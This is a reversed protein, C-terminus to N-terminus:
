FVIPGMSVGRRGRRGRCPLAGSSKHVVGSAHRMRYECTFVAVGACAYEM